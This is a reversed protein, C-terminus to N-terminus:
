NIITLNLKNTAWNYIWENSDTSSNWDIYDQGSISLEGIILTQSNQINPDIPDIILEILQYQFIATGNYNILNNGTSYLTFVNAQHQAGQFWTTIPQINAM